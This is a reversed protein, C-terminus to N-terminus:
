EVEELNDFSGTWEYVEEWKFARGCNPCNAIYYLIVKEDYNEWSYNDTTEEDLEVNCYPCKPM